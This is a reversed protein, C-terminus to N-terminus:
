FYHEHEFSQARRLYFYDTILNNLTNIEKYLERRREEKEKGPLTNNDIKEEDLVLQRLGAIYHAKQKTIDYSRQYYDKSWSFLYISYEAYGMIRSGQHGYYTGGYNLFGYITNLTAYIAILKRRQAAYKAIGNKQKLFYAYLLYYEDQGAESNFVPQKEANSLAYTADPDGVDKSYLEPHNDVVDNFEKKSLEFTDDPGAYILVSDQTTHYGSRGAKDKSLGTTTDALIATKKQAPPTSCSLFLLIFLYPRQM